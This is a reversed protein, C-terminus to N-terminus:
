PQKILITELPALTISELGPCKINSIESTGFNVALVYSIGDDGKIKVAKLDDNGTRLSTAEVKNGGTRVAFGQDFLVTDPHCAQKGTDPHCIQDCYLNRGARGYTKGFYEVQRCGPRNISLGDIGYIGSITLKHDVTVDNGYIAIKEQKQNVGGKVSMDKGDCTYNRVYGNYLDNPVNYFLGKVSKLWTLNEAKARQFVVMTADDPLAFAAVNEIATIENEQGEALHSDSHWTLRGATRFGGSFKVDLHEKIEAYNILGLGSIEGVMNWSWEALDSSDSPICTGAPRLAAEWVWSASRRKGKELMGGHFSDYWGGCAPSVVPKPASAFNNYKSRWYAAMSVTVARDGELRHYYLPSKDNFEALRTGLFSGDANGDQERAVQKLWGEEMEAIDEGYKDKMLLWMPIAYDQCYCYRLRTDGGIRWLRGDSFTCLKILRWLEPVHHYLADPATLGRGKFSFHLMAINSLCIVMYGVNLYGHHHLGFNETFNPGVHWDKVPKGDIMTMDAADAPISIGNLLFRNAKELYEKRRPADPYMMATRFLVCGNWINSEPRNKGKTGDIEGVIEYHDLHWDSEALLVKKLSEHDEPTLHENIAEIGHMMREICLPSIWTLGWSQGDLAKETGALHTRLSFRMLKLACELLQRRSMGIAAEDLEPAAALVAIAAFSTTNTQQSWHGHDGTGCCAIDKRNPPFYVATSLSKTWKQLMELYGTKLSKM